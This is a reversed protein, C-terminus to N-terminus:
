TLFGWSVVYEKSYVSFLYKNVLSIYICICMYMCVDIFNDDSNYTFHLWLSFWLGAYFVSSIHDHLQSLSCGNM